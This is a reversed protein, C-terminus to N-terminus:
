RENFGEGSFAFAASSAPASIITAVPKSSPPVKGLITKPVKEITGNITSATLCVGTIAAPPIASLLANLAANASPASPTYQPM